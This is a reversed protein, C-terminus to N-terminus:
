ELQRSSLDSESSSQSDEALENVVLESGTDVGTRYASRAILHSAVPAAVMQIAIVITCVVAWQWTRMVILLGLCIITLGLLQPKSAAHMRSFLDHFRCLGIAAILTLSVGFLVFLSGVLDLVENM